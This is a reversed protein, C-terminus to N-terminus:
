NFLLAKKLYELVASTDSKDSPSSLYVSKGQILINSGNSNLEIKTELRHDTTYYLTYLEANTLYKRLIELRNYKIRDPNPYYNYLAQEEIPTSLNHKKYEIIKFESFDRNSLIIDVDGPYPTDTTSLYCELKSTSYLLGKRGINFKKGTGIRIKNKLEDITIVKVDISYDNNLRTYIIGENISWNDDNFLLFCVNLMQSRGFMSLRKLQECGEFKILLHRITNEWNIDKTLENVSIDIFRKLWITRVLRGSEWNVFFDFSFANIEFKDLHETKFWSEPGGSSININAKKTRDNCLSLTNALSIKM